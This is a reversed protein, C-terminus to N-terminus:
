RKKRRMAKKLHRRPIGTFVPPPDDTIPEQNPSAAVRELVTSVLHEERETRAATRSMTQNRTANGAKPASPKQATTKQQQHAATTPRRSTDRFNRRDPTSSPQERATELRQGKRSEEWQRTSEFLDALDKDIPASRASRVPRNASPLRRPRQNGLFTERDTPRSDTGHRNITTTDRRIKGLRQDIRFTQSWNFPNPTHQTGAGRRQAPNKGKGGTYSMGCRHLHRVVSLSIKNGAVYGHDHLWREGTPYVHWTAFEDGNRTVFFLDGDRNCRLQITAEDSCGGKTLSPTVVKKERVMDTVEGGTATFVTAIRVENGVHM